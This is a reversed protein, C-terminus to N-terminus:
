ASRRLTGSLAPTARRTTFLPPDPPRGSVRQEPSLVVPPARRSDGFVSALSLKTVLAPDTDPALLCHLSPLLLFLEEVDDDRRPTLLITAAIPNRWEALLALHHTLRGSVTESMVVLDIWGSRICSEAVAHSATASTQLGAKMFALMLDMQRMADDDVILVQM